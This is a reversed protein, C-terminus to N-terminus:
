IHIYIHIHTHVYMCIYGYMYIYRYMIYIDYVALDDMDRQTQERLFTPLSDRAATLQRQFAELEHRLSAV